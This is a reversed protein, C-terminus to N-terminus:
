EVKTGRANQLKAYMPHEPSNIYRNEFGKKLLFMAVDKAGNMDKATPWKPEQAIPVTPRFLSYARQGKPIAFRYWCQDKIARQVKVMASEMYESMIGTIPSEQKVPWVIYNPWVADEPLPEVCIAFQVQRCPPSYPQALKPHVLYTPRKTPDDFDQLWVWGHLLTPYVRVFNKPKDVVKVIEIGTDVLIQAEQKTESLASEIDGFDEEVSSPAAPMESFADDEPGNAAAVAHGNSKPPEPSVSGAKAKALIAPGSQKSGPDEANLQAQSVKKM